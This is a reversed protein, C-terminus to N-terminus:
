IYISYDIVKEKREFGEAAISLKYGPVEYEMIRCMCRESDRYVKIEDEIVLNISQLPVKLGEGTMKLYAEKMTWIRYFEEVREEKSCRELYSQENETFYREALGTREKGIKEIDCGVERDSVVCVVKGKSHSINFYLGDIIPKGSLTYAMDRINKGHRNLVDRLLLGAGLSERRDEARKFRMIRRKREVDLHEMAELYEKPDKVGDLDALYLEIMAEECFVTYM